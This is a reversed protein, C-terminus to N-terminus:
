LKIKKTDIGIETFYQKLANEIFRSRNTTEEMLDKYIQPTFTISLRVRRDDEKKLQKM